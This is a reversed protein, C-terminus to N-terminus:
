TGDNMHTNTSLLHSLKSIMNLFKLTLHWIELPILETSIQIDSVQM